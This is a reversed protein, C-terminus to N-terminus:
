VPVDVRQLVEELVDEVGGIGEVARRVAEEQSGWQLSREDEPRVLVLRHPYVKRVALAVLSPTLFDLGHLPALARVLLHLHRTAAATVGGAVARHLRMFVVVNHIYARVEATLRVARSAAIIADIDEKTFEPNRGKGTTASGIRGPVKIDPVPMSFSARVVSSESSADDDFADNQKEYLKPLDDSHSHFHSIFFQDNLHPDLAATSSASLVAILLFRKPVVHVATRTFIRRGRILELAQIQVQTHALNLNKAIVVNAIKRNDIPRSSAPSPSRYIGKPADANFYSFADKALNQPSHCENDPDNVLIANGFDDLSTRESCELVASPLGFTSDSILCLEQVLGDVAADDVEIICHQETVLCLLAALEVDGLAQVKEEFAHSKQDM